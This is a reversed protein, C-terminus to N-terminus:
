NTKQIFYKRQETQKPIHKSESSHSPTSLQTLKSLTVRYYLFTHHFVYFIRQGWRIRRVNLPIMLIETLKGVISFSPVICMKSNMCIFLAMPMHAIAISILEFPPLFPICINSLPRNLSWVFVTCKIVIMKLTGIQSRFYKQIFLFRLFIRFLAVRKFLKFTKLGFFFLLFRFNIFLIWFFSLIFIFLLLYVFSNSFLIM